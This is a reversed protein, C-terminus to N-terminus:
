YSAATSYLPYCLLSETLRGHRRRIQMQPHTLDKYGKYHFIISVISLLVKRSGCTLHTPIETIFHLFHVFPTMDPAFDGGPPADLSCIQAHHHSLLVGSTDQKWAAENNSSPLSRLPHTMVKLTPMLLNGFPDYDTEGKEPTRSYGSIHAYQRHKSSQGGEDLFM